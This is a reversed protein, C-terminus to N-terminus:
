PRLLVLYAVDVADAAPGTLEIHIRNADLPAASLVGATGGQATALVFSNEALRGGVTVDVGSSGTKIRVVGSARFRAGGDVDLAMGYRKGNATASSARLATSARLGRAWVAAEKGRATAIVAHTPAEAVIATGIADVVLSGGDLKLWGAGADLQGESPGTGADTIRLAPGGASNELELTAGKVKAALRTRRTGADNAGGLVLPEGPAAGASGGLAGVGAAAGAVAAYRLLSRRAVTARSSQSM